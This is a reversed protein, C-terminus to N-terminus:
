EQKKQLTAACFLCDGSRMQGFYLNCIHFGQKYLYILNNLGEQSPEEDKGEGVGSVAALSRRLELNEEELYEIHNKMKKLDTIM